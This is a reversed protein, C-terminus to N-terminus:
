YDKIHLSQIPGVHINGALTIYYKLFTQILRSDAIVAGAVVIVQSSGEGGTFEHSSAM